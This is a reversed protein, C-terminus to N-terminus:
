RFWPIVSRRGAIQWLRRWRLLLLRTVIMPEGSELVLYAFMSYLHSVSSEGPYLLSVSRSAVRKGPSMWNRESSKQIQM